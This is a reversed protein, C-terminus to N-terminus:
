VRTSGEGADLLRPHTIGKFVAEHPWTTVEIGRYYHQTEARHSRFYQDRTLPALDVEHDRDHIIAHSLRDGTALIKYTTSSATEANRPM